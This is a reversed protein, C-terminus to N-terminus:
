PSCRRQREGQAQGGVPQDRLTHAGSRDKHEVIDKRFEIVAARRRKQYIQRGPLDHDGGRRRKGFGGPWFPQDVYGVPRDGTAPSLSVTPWTSSSSVGNDSDRSRTRLPRLFFQPTTRITTLNSAEEAPPLLDDTVKDRPVHSGNAKFVAHEHHLNVLRGPGCLELEEAPLHHITESGLDANIDIPDLRTARRLAAATSRTVPCSPAILSSFVLIRLSRVSAIFARSSTVTDVSLITIEAIEVAETAPSLATSSESSCIM